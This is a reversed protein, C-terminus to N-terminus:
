IIRVYCQTANPGQTVVEVKTILYDEGSIVETEGGEPLTSKLHLLSDLLEDITM